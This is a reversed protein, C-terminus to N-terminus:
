ENNNAKAKIFKKRLIIGPVLWAATAAIATLSLNIYAAQKFNIQQMFAAKDAFISAFACFFCVVGGILMPKFKMIGGTIFTPIGYLIFISFVDISRSPSNPFFLAEVMPKIFTGLFMAIAFASWIYGMATDNWSKALKKKNQNISYTIQISGAVLTLFWPNLWNNKIGLWIVLIHLLACLVITIGWLLPGFGDDLFTNKAKKIMQSIIDLSENTTFTNQQNMMMNKKIALKLIM